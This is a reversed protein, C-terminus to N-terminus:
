AQRSRAEAIAVLVIDLASWVLELNRESCCHQGAQDCPRTRAGSSAPTILLDVCVREMSSICREIINSSSSNARPHRSEPPSYCYAFLASVFVVVSQTKMM